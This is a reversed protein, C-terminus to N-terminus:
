TPPRRRGPGRMVQDPLRGLGPEASPHTRLDLYREITRESGRRRAVAALPPFMLRQVVDPPRRYRIESRFRTATLAGLLPSPRGDANTHGDACLGWFVAIAEDFRLAPEISAVLHVDHDAPNFWHHWAGAAVTIADGAGLTRRDGDVVFVIRGSRVELREACHDHVHEGGPVFGGAEVVFDVVIRAGGTDESSEIMLAKEGTLPNWIVDGARM